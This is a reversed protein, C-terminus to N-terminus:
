FEYDRQNENNRRERLSRQMWLFNWCTRPSGERMAEIKKGLILDVQLIWTGLFEHIDDREVYENRYALGLSEFFLMLGLIRSFDDESGDGKDHKDNLEEIRDFCADRFIQRKLEDSSTKYDESEALKQNVHKVLRILAARSDRLEGSSWRQEIMFYTEAQSAKRYQRLQM